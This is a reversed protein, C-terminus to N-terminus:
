KNEKLLDFDNYKFDESSLIKEADEVNVYTVFICGKFENNKKLNKRMQVSEVDGFTSCFSKIQDLTSDKPFGKIHLTRTNLIKIFEESEEPLPKNRRVKTNCESLEVLGSTSKKISNVVLDQDTTLTKLRNFTM